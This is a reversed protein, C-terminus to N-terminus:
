HGSRPVRRLLLEARSLLQRLDPVPASVRRVEGRLVQNGDDRADRAADPFNVVGGRRVVVRGTADTASTGPNTARARV